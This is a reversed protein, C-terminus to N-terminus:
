TLLNPRRPNGWELTSNGWELTSHQSFSADHGFRQQLIYIREFLIAKGMWVNKVEWSEFPPTSFPWCQFILM